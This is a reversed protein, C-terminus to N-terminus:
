VSYVDQLKQVNLKDLLSCCRKLQGSTPLLHRLASDAAMKVQTNKDQMLLVLLPVLRVLHNDMTMPVGLVVECAAVRVEISPHKLTQCLASLITEQEDDQMMFNHLAKLGSLCVPIRDSTAYAVVAACAEEKLGVAVVRDFGHQLLSSLSIAKAQLITWDPVGVIQVLDMIALKVQDVSLYFALLGRCAAAELRNVEQTTNKFAGLTEMIEGSLKESIQTGGKELAGYLTQLYTNRIAADDNKKIGNHLENFVSDVRPCLIPVLEKLGTSAMSRVAANGDNLAKVYSTQLQTVVPKAASGVKRVLEVLAELTAVRVSWVYRDGLVRILPGAILMVVKGSSLTTGSSLLIVKILVRASEEKEEPTGNILGEKLVSLIPIIGKLAFGHLEGGPSCNPIIDLAKQLHSVLHPLEKPNTRKVIADLACWGAECLEPTQDNLLLTCFSILRPVHEALEATSRACLANLLRLAAVKSQLEGEQVEALLEEILGTLGPEESVSLVVGEAAEWTQQDCTGQLSATLAPIIRDLHKNLAEGAVSSLLALARTNVPPMVLQPILYPLVVKGKVSVVQRLADLALDSHQHSGLKEVLPKLVEDLVRTGLTAHLSNFTQAAAARVDPHSDCLAAQVTPVLSDVYLVVSDKSTQQIIESLGICVGQREEKKDTKLGQELMPIVDPLVREGLKRVLDGLTRAAVKRKDANSSALCGLLLHILTPLIERLSRATNTVVVKWVHLSAQRVILSVDSRGMYLGALVRNRREVGLINIIAQRAEETGFNDDEESETSMKGSVGSIKFLFDGLLQISSHRIRWNEDFLGRELEPMFLEVATDAYRSVITQGAQLATDRIFESEDALGKLVSPLINSIFPVFEDKFAVPLYVFLLLYGDRVHTPQTLDQSFAVFRPMLQTLREVGQAFLVESLGQAAGSRDVSSSESQLTTLLWPLLEQLGEEGMGKVMAGLAQSCVSRVEPVPDVLSQKLGPLINPLYPALDKQDTLTYMNGIIQAAMKKTETSRLELTRQLTPMILALSPPDVVHVFETELLAKLCVQAKNSPDALAELLVPVLNQIEPNKIVSGIQQLSQSGALQVKSHSDSLIEILKPVINPLCSSLQRPACYAMAGLLEASGAKTRWSDEQLASLLSPLILKVGHSSLHAMIVKATHDTAERVYQNGDGFCLLLDPLLHVVYPEFLKGLMNCLTEYAFLAGERHRYSKKDQVAEQLKQMIQFQKLTPIGLGKVLGAIGYAAGKRQSYSPSELLVIHFYIETDHMLMILDSIGRPEFGGFIRLALTRANTDLVNPLFESFSEIEKIAAEAITSQTRKTMMQSSTNWRKENGAEVCRSSQGFQHRQYVLGEDCAADYPVKNLLKIIMDEADQKIAPALAPLCEAIAEQVQQSPTDLNSLLLHVVEKVKVNSRDLHKALTGMLVVLCQRVVDAEQSNPLQQVCHEFHAMLEVALGEGHVAIATQAAQQMAERVLSQRDSLCGPIIFQLLKMTEAPSLHAPLEAIAKAVGVRDEWPDRYHVAVVRGFSDKEPPPANNKNEYIDKLEQLFYGARANYVKLWKGFAAAAPTQVTLNTSAIRQILQQGMSPQLQYGSEDWFKIALKSNNDDSDHCEILITVLVNLDSSLARKGLCHLSRLVANRLMAVSSLLDTNLQVLVSPSVEQLQSCVAIYKEVCPKKGTSFEQLAARSMIKWLQQCLIAPLPLHLGKAVLPVLAPIHPLLINRDVAEFVSLLQTLENKYSNLRLRTAAELALQSEISEKLKKSLTIERLLTQVGGRVSQLKQLRLQKRMEQEWKQEEFSYVKSERKINGEAGKSIAEQLQQYLEKHWLQDDPTLLIELEDQDNRGLQHLTELSRKAADPDTSTGKLIVTVLPEMQEVVFSHSDFNLTKLLKRWALPCVSTVSSSHALQLSNVALSVGQPHGPFGLNLLAVLLAQPKYDKKMEYLLEVLLASHAPKTHVIRALCDAVLKYEQWRECHEKLERSTQCLLLEALQVLASISEQSVSAVVNAATLTGGEVLTWVKSAVQATGGFLAACAVMGEELATISASPVIAREVYCHQM